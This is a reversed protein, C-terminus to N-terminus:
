LADLFAKIAIEVNRGREMIMARRVEKAVEWQAMLQKALRAEAETDKKENRSSRDSSDGEGGGSRQGSRPKDQNMAKAAGGSIAGAAGIGIIGNIIKRQAFAPTTSMAWATVIAVGITSVSEATRLM